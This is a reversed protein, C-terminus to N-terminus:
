SERERMLNLEKCKNKMVGINQIKSSTFQGVKQTKSTIKYEYHTRVNTATKDWNVKLCRILDRRGNAPM